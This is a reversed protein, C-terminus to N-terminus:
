KSGKEKDSLISTIDTVYGQREEEGLLNGTNLDWTGIWTYQGKHSYHYAAGFKKGNPSFVFAGAKVDNDGKFQDHTPIIRGTEIEKIQYHNGIRTAEYKKDPSLCSTYCGITKISNNDAIANVSFVGLVIGSITWIVWLTQVVGSLGTFAKICATLKEM